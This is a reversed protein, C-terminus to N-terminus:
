IALPFTAALMWGFFLASGLAYSWPENLQAAAFAFIALVLPLIPLLLFMFGLQPLWYLTLFLGGVVAVTQGLWWIFRRGAGLDQQAMGSALFWPLCGLSFLPWLKLRVPILWWQLWVVQAMAGFGLWLIVFLGLGLAIAKAKPRPLHAIIGLWASGAILFWLGLAGGVMLGGLSSLDSGRSVLLLIGIAAFPALLLGEWARLPKALRQPAPVRWAPAFAALLGLWGVLHLGYWGFRLDVYPRVLPRNFTANLWRLAGHHSAKSFLITIHEVGPVIMLSRGKGAGLNENKGGAAQLLQQANEIFQGEGSGVQLMLNRPAQPTVAAQTPSIAVTASYRDLHRIGASMVAGSGMSHGLLALRSADVEPQAVLATYAADLDAQLDGPALPSSNAGHGKFDWLMVGYGGHALVHAYGLMLQKSGAFGHAVLVGPVNTAPPAVFVMPVGQRELSRITLGSRATAIGIWAALILLLSAIALVLHRRTM